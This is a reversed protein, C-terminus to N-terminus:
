VQATMPKTESAQPAPRIQNTSTSGQIINKKKFELRISGQQTNVNTPQSGTLTPQDSTPNSFFISSKKM